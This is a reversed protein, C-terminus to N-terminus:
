FSARPPRLLAFVMGIGAKSQYHFYTSLLNSCEPAQFSFDFAPMWGLVVMSAKKLWETRTQETKEQSKLRKMLYCKGKCNMSPRTKNECFRQTIENRNLHFYGIIVLKFGSQILILLAFIISVFGKM